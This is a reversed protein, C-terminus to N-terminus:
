MDSRAIKCKSTKVKVQCQKLQEFLIRLHKLHLDFERSFTLLDDIYATSTDIGHIIKEIVRQLTAGANCLGFPM